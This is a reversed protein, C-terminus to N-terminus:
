SADGGAKRTMLNSFFNKLQENDMDKSIGPTSGTDPEAAGALDPSSHANRDQSKVDAGPETNLTYPSQPCRVKIRQVMDDADVQIGGMNFQVPGIHERVSREEGFEPRKGGLGDRSGSEPLKDAAKAKYLELTKHQRELFVQVDDSDVNVSPGGTMANDVLSIGGSAPDRCWDEYRAIASDEQNIDVQPEPAAEGDEREEDAGNDPNKSRQLAEFTPPETGRPLKIDEAWAESV